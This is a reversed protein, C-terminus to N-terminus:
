LHILANQMNLLDEVRQDSLTKLSRIERAMGVIGLQPELTRSLLLCMYFNWVLPGWVGLGGLKVPRCVEDQSLTM